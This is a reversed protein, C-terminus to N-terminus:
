KPNTCIMDITAEALLKGDESYVPCRVITITRGRKVLIGESRVVAGTSVNSIFNVHASQTVYSRGDARATIGSVVDTLAYIMGGHLKGHLNSVMKSVPMTIESLETGVKTVKIDHSGLFPNLIPYTEPDIYPNKEASM